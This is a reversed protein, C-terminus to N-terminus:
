RNKNPKATTCNSQSVLGRLRIPSTQNVNPKAGGKYKQGWKGNAANVLYGRTAFAAFPPPAKRNENAANASQSYIINGRCTFFPLRRGTIDRRVLPKNM